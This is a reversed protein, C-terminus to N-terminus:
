AILYFNYFGSGVHLIIANNDPDVEASTVGEVGAVFHNDKWVPSSGEFITVGAENWSSQFIANAQKCSAPVPFYIAALKNNPVSAQVYFAVTENFDTEWLFIIGRHSAQAKSLPLLSSGDRDACIERITEMAIQTQPPRLILNQFAIGRQSIGALGEYLWSGHSGLFIHDHTPPPPHTLDAHGSWNEWLSTAGNKFWYGWSPFTSQNALALALDMRGLETVVPLLFRTGVAGTTLHTDHTKVIDDILNKAVTEGLSQPVLGGFLPLLNVTQSGDVYAGISGNYFYQHFPDRLKAHLTAYHEADETNGLIDAMGSLIQIDLLYHFCASIPGTTPIEYTRPYTNCWDGYKHYLLLGTDNDTTTTLYDVYQKYGNYHRKLLAVDGYHEYMYWSILMYASSWTADTTGRATGSPVIDPVLGKSTGHHLSNYDQVDQMTRIWNSYFAAMDYNWIAVLATVQADGMWGRKERNPCDTPISFLNNLQTNRIAKQISNLLAGETNVESGSATKGFTLTGESELKTSMKECQIAKSPTANKPLGHVEVYQFGYYIWSTEISETGNGSLIFVSTMNVNLQNKVSGDPNLEEGKMLSIVQGSEGSVSELVCAGAINIGLDIVWGDGQEYIRSPIITDTTDIRPILTSSLKGVAPAADATLAQLDYIDDSTLPRSEITSVTGRKGCTVSIALQKKVMHCPDGFVNRSAPVACQRHGVCLQTVIDTSNKANCSTSEHFTNDPKCPSSCSGTPTGFSAFNVKTIEESADACGLIANNNEDVLVCQDLSPGYAKEWGSDDFGAMNWGVQDLRADYTEGQYMNSKICPDDHLKWTTPLVKAKPSRLGPTCAADSHTTVMLESGDSLLIHIQLLAWLEGHYDIKWFGPGLRIGIANVAGPRAYYHADWADYLVRATFFTQSGLKANSTLEQGNLFLKYYGLGAAYARARLITVNAPLSFETRLRISDSPTVDNSYDEKKPPRGIWHAMWDSESMFATSFSDQAYLSPPLDTNNWWRVSWAYDSDSELAQGAYHIQSTANSDVKGSDWVQTQTRSVLDTKSVNIQYAVQHMIRPHYLLPLDWQFRPDAMDIGRPQSLYEVRLNSASELPYAMAGMRCLIASFGILRLAITMIQELM